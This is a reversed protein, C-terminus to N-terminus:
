GRQRIVGGWGLARAQLLLIGAREQEPEQPLFHQNITTAQQQEPVPPTPSPTTASPTPLTPTPPATPSPPPLSLSSSSSPSSSPSPPFTCQTRHPHTPPPPQTQTLRHFTHFTNPPLFHIRSLSRPRLHVNKEEGTIISFSVCCLRVLCSVARGKYACGWVDLVFSYRVFRGWELLVAYDPELQSWRLRM